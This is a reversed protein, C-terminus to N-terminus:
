YRALMNPSKPPSNAPVVPILGVLKKRCFRMSLSRAFSKPRDNVPLPGFTSRTFLLITMIQHNLNFSNNWESVQFFGSILNVGAVGCFVICLTDITENFTAPNSNLTNIIRGFLINFAPICLGTVLAGSLGLFM